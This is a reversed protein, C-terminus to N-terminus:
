FENDSVCFDRCKLKFMVPDGSLNNRMLPESRCIVGEIEMPRIATPSQPKSKVFSVIEQETMMGFDYPIPLGLINAITKVEERTSWRDGHWVDFLIFGVDDRYNGGSQIKPGYGEGFLIVSQKTNMYDFVPRPKIYKHIFDQISQPIMSDENRGKVIIQHGLHLDTNDLSIMYIRINMGDIKEEVRWKNISEFEPSAYQGEIFKGKKQDDRKWLSNIKPYRM